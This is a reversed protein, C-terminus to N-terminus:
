KLNEIWAQVLEVAVSDVIVTGLPPMQSSPRRSKMRYLISSHEPKGPQIFRTSDPPLNPIVFRGRSNLLTSMAPEPDSDHADVNHLMNLGLRALPGTSNHCGGCNASLYGMAARAAPNEARIRPPHTVLDQRPPNLRNQELLKRLTLMDARLSDQHPAFPDRDDSLQLATFGLAVGPSSLHCSRCDSEAPISHRKGAAIEYANSIGTAPALTADTQEDNWVYSAFVWDNASTRWIMRTEVKHGNFSFEKWLKTGVPFKWADVNSIDIHSGEPLFIWRSKSAGDTWLPYQPSFYQNHSDIEGSRDYLGTQSLLQPANNATDPAAPSKSQETTLCGALILLLCVVASMALTHAVRSRLPSGTAPRGSRLSSLPTM